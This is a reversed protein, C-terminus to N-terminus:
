KVKKIYNRYFAYHKNDILVYYEIPEQTEGIEYLVGVTGDDIWEHGRMDRTEALVGCWPAGAEDKGGVIEVLDGPKLVQKKM